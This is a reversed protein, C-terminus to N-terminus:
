IFIKSQIGVTSLTFCQFNIKPCQWLIINKPINRHKNIVDNMNHSNTAPPNAERAFIQKEALCSDAPLEFLSRSSM